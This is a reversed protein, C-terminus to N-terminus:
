EWVRIDVHTLELDRIANLVVLRIMETTLKMKRGVVALPLDRDRGFGFRLAIIRKNRDLKGKIPRIIRLRGLAEGIIQNRAAREDQVEKTLHLGLRKQENTFGDRTPSCNLCRSTRGLPMPGECDKCKGARRRAANRRNASKRLKTLDRACLTHGELAPRGCLHGCLGQMLAQRRQRASKRRSQAGHLECFLRGARAPEPCSRCEGRLQKAQFHAKNRRYNKQLCFKCLKKGRAPRREPKPSCCLTCRIPKAM